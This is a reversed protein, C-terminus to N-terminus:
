ARVILHKDPKLGESTSLDPLPTTTTSPLVTQAAAYGIASIGLLLLVARRLTM